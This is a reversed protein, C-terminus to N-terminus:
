KWWHKNGSELTKSTSVVEGLTINKYTNTNHWCICARLPLSGWTYLVFLSDSKTSYTAQVCGSGRVGSMYYRGYDGTFIELTFM